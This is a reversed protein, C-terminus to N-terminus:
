HLLEAICSEIGWRSDIMDSYLVKGEQSILTLTPAVWGPYNLQRYYNTWKFGPRKTYQEEQTASAPDSWSIVQLGKDHYKAYLDEVLEMAGGSYICNSWWQFLLTCPAKVYEEPLSITMEGWPKDPLSFDPGDYTRYDRVQIDPNGSIFVGWRNRWWPQEYFEDPLPGTLNNEQVWLNSVHALNAPISGTLNCKIFQLTELNKNTGLSYPITGGLDNFNICLQILNDFGYFIDPLPGTIGTNDLQIHTLKKLRGFEKPMPGNVADDMINLEKLNTLKCIIDLSVNYGPSWICVTELENLEGFSNPLSGTLKAGYVSFHKLHKLESINEPIEGALPSMTLSLEELNKLNVIKSPFVTINQNDLRLRKLKRCEFLGEPLRTLLAKEGALGVIDISELNKLSGISEPLADISASFFDLSKLETLNCLSEPIRGKARTISLGTIHGTVYDISVGSWFELPLDTLWGSNTQWNDGDLANYLDVLVDKEDKQVFEHNACQEIHFVLVLGGSTTIVIDASRSYGENAKIRLVVGAKHLSKTETVIEIWSAADAPIQVETAEDTIYDLSLEGEDSSVVKQSDDYVELGSNSFEIRRMIVAKGDTVVVVIKDFEYDIARGTAIDLVGKHPDYSDPFVRAKVNSSTFVEVTIEDFSSQIRYPIQRRQNPVMVLGDKCDIEFELSQLMPIRITQGDTLVFLVYEGQIEISEVLPDGNEGDKGDKGDSGDKGDKGFYIDIAQGKQFSIKYGIIIGSEYIPSVFSIMDGENLKNMLQSLADLRSEVSDLRTDLAEIEEKNSCALFLFAAFVYLIFAKARRM